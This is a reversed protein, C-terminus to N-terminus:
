NSFFYAGIRRVISMFIRRRGTSLSRRGSIASVISASMWVDAAGAAYVRMHREGDCANGTLPKGRHDTIRRGQLQRIIPTDPANREVTFARRHVGLMALKVGSVDDPM